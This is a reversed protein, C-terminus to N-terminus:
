GRKTICGNVGAGQLTRNASDAAAKGKFPGVLVKYITGNPNSAEQLNSSLGTGLAIRAKLNEASDKSRLAACQMIYRRDDSTPEPTAESVPAPKKEAKEATQAKMAKEREAKAQAAQKEQQAKLERELQERALKEKRLQEKEAQERLAKAQDAERQVVFPENTNSVPAPASQTPKAPEKTVPMTPAPQSSQPKYSKIEGSRLTPEMQYPKIKGIPTGPQPTNTPETPTIPAPAVPQPPAVGLQTPPDIIDVQKNELREIYSWKEQPPNSNQQTKPKNAKVQQEITPADGGKGNIIYLFAGFGALLAAALLAPIIPFRRAPAKKNHRGSTTRHKPRNGVYDRTAM